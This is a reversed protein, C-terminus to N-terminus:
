QTYEQYFKRAPRGQKELAALTNEVHPAMMQKIKEVDAAPLSIIELGKAVLQARGTKESEEWAKGFSAAGAVGAARDLLARLDAPLANYKAPNMVMAFTATSIPPEIAYKVVAGLDYAVGAEYPFMAADVIGKALADQSEPPPVLMPVAGLTDLLSKNQVGAYRIKMGKFDEVKRVAVKSFVVVPNAVSMFLIRLGQHEAALYTPALETLRPGSVSPLAGVKPWTFPLNAIETMAYRGPTVGHLSFAIDVVANRAADFQRHPPGVIQGNPYIVFKLKGGSNKELEAAWGTVWKHFPHTPPVFHSLKLEISQAQAAEGLAIGGAVLLLLAFKNLRRSM